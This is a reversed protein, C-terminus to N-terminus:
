LAKTSAALMQKMLLVAKEDFEAEFSGMQMESKAADSIASLDARDITYIIMESTGVSYRSSSVKGDHDGKGLDFKKGDALIILNRNQLFCWRPCSARFVLFFQDM